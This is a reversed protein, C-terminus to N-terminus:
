RKSQKKNEKWEDYREELELLKEENLLMVFIVGALTWFFISFTALSM